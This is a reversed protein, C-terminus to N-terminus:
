ANSQYGCVVFRLGRFWFGWFEEYDNCEWFGDESKTKTEDVWLGMDTIRM